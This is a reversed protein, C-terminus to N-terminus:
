LFNELSCALEGSNGYPRLRLDIRFIGARKTTIFNSADKILINYFEKNKISTKGDTDGNDSYVVLIELDSAYGLAEGGLKGLGFIAYKADLNIITKPNGYKAALNEYNIEFAKNIILEALRTLRISLNKFNFNEVLIHQLDIKFIENDKFNNLITKKEEYSDTM